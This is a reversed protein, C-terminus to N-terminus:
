DSEPARVTLVACKSERVVHSAVSGLFLRSLGTLGRTGMACLDYDRTAQVIHGRADGIALEQMVEVGEPVDVSKVFDTLQNELNKRGEESMVGQVVPSALMGAGTYMPLPAVHVFKVVGGEGAAALLQLGREAALRSCDSFDVPILVRRISEM